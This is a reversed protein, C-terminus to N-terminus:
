RGEAVEVAGFVCGNWAPQSVKRKFSSGAGVEPAFGRAIGEGGGDEIGGAGRVEETGFDGDM